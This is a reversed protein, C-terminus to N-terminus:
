IIKNVFPNFKGEGTLIFEDKEFSFKMKTSNQKKIENCIVDFNHQDSIQLIFIVENICNQVVQWKEIGSIKSLITYFNVTPIEGDFTKLNSDKRGLISKIILKGNDDRIAIATDNTDYRLLPMAFNNYCTGIISYENENISPFLELFGYEECIAYDGTSDLNHLMIVGEALGYHDFVKVKFYEEIYKRDETTLTESATFCGKLHNLSLNYKKCFKTFVVISSAYGRLFKTKRSIMDNYYTFLSNDDMHYPSYYTWNKIKDHSFLKQGDKPNYSRLISIHDFIKYGSSFWHRWIVSQELIWHVKSVRTTLPIGTTGSTKFTMYNENNNYFSNINKKLINKNLLPIKYFDKLSNFDTNPDFDIKKFLNKYYEVEKSKILLKRLKKYRYKDLFSDTNNLFYKSQFIYFFLGMITLLSDEINDLLNNIKKRM